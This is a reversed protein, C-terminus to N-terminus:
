TTATATFPFWYTFEMLASGMDLFYRALVLAALVLPDDGEKAFVAITSFAGLENQTLKLGLRLRFLGDPVYDWLGGGSRAASATIRFCSRPRQLAPPRRGVPTCM